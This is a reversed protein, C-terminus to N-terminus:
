ITLICHSIIEFYKYRNYNPKNLYQLNYRLIKIDSYNLKNIM